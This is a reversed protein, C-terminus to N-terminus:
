SDTKTKVSLRSCFVKLFILFDLLTPFSQYRIKRIKLVLAFVNNRCLLSSVLSQGRIELSILDQPSEHIFKRISSILTRKVQAM